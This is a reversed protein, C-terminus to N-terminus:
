RWERHCSVPLRPTRTNDLPEHPTRDSGATVYERSFANGSRCLDFYDRRHYAISGLTRESWSVIGVSAEALVLLGLPGRGGGSVFAHGLAFDGQGWSTVLNSRWRPERQRDQHDFAM